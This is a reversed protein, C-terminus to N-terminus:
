IRNKQCVRLLLGVVIFMVKLGTSSVSTFVHILKQRLFFFECKGKCATVAQVSARAQELPKYLSAAEVWKERGRWERRQM